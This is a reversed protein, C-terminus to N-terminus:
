KCRHSISEARECFRILGHMKENAAAIPILLYNAQIIVLNVMVITVNMSFNIFAIDAQLHNFLFIIWKIM